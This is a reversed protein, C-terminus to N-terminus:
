LPCEEEPVAKNVLERTADDDTPEDDYPPDCAGSEDLPLDVQMEDLRLPREDFIEGTEKNVFWVKRKDYNIHKECQVDRWEGCESVVQHLKSITGDQVDIEAKISSRVSAMKRELAAKMSLAKALETSRDKFEADTLAVHLNRKVNVIKPKINTKSM